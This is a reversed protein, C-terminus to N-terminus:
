PLIVQTLAPRRMTDGQGLQGNANDGSCWVTRDRKIACTHFNGIGVWDWDSDTGAQAPDARKPEYPIGLQGETNRGWCWLTGNSRIGCSHLFGAAVHTWDSLAGVRTPANTGSVAAGAGSQGSTNAGWCYLDGAGRIGCTHLLGASVDVWDADTGVRQPTRLQGTAGAGLGLEGDTNRGWCWLSRDARVGCAHGQGMRVVRFGALVTVETPQVLNAPSAGDLGSQGEGNSGWSWVGGRDDFGFASAFHLDLSRWDMRTGVRQLGGRNKMTNGLALQGSENVGVCWLGGATDVLCTFKEGASVAAYARGPAALQPRTQDMTDTTALQGVDNAGWCLLAGNRIVCTHFDGVAGQSVAAPPPPAGVDRAADPGPPAGDPRLTDPPASDVAAVPADSADMAGAPADGPPAMDGPPVEAAAALDLGARDAPGTVGGDPGAGDVLPHPNVTPDYGVRGCGLALM